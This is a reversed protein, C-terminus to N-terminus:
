ARRCAVVAHSAPATLAVGGLGSASARAYWLASSLVVMDPTTSGTLKKFAHAGELLSDEPSLAGLAARLGKVSADSLAETWNQSARSPPKPPSDHVGTAGFLRMEPTLQSRIM